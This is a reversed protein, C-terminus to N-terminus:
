VAERDWLPLHRLAMRHKSRAFVEISAATAIITTTTGNASAGVMAAAWVAPFDMVVGEPKCIMSVVTPVPAEGFGPWIQTM